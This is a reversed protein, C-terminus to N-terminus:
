DKAPRYPKLQTLEAIRGPALHQRSKWIFGTAPDAWYVNRGHMGGGQLQEDFRQLTRSTGLIDVQELVGRSLIGTVAVSVQYAPVWDYRRQVTVPTTVARLDNFPSPGDIRARWQQGLGSGGLLLGHRDMEFVAHSGAFWQQRGADVYGLVAVAAIDPADVQMQPFRNSAVREATVQAPRYTILRFADVTSRSGTTCSTLLLAAVIAPLLVGFARHALCHRAADM